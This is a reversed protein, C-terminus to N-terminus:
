YVGITRRHSDNCHGDSFDDRFVARGRYGDDCNIGTTTSCKKSFLMDERYEMFFQCYSNTV